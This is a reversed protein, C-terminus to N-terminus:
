LRQNPKDQEFVKMNSWSSKANCWRDLEGSDYRSCELSERTGRKHGYKHNMVLGIADEVIISRMGEEVYVTILRGSCVCYDLLMGLWYGGPECCMRQSYVAILMVYQATLRRDQRNHKLSVM